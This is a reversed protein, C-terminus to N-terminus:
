KSAGPLLAAQSAKYAAIVDVTWVANAVTSVAEPMGSLDGGPALTTRWNHQLVTGDDLTVFTKRLIELAGSPQVTTVYEDHQTM